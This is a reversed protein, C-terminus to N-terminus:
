RPGEARLDQPAAPYSECGEWARCPCLWAPADEPRLATERRAPRCLPCAPTRDEAVGGPGVQAGTSPAIRFGSTTAASM